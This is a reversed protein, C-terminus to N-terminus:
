LNRERTEPTDEAKPVVVIGTESVYYRQRDAELDFGLTMGAEIHVNKDVIARQIRCGPGVYVNDLLISDHVECGADLFVNRGLVSDKAYGGALICGPSVVSQVAAGRRGAEDFVFKAPPDNFNATMIPWKWNYLNLQPQVNKLDLNAEFYGEITGVDRWYALEEQLFSGPIRNQTFDYAYAVSGRTLAPLIDAGFDHSSDPHAADARLAEILTRPEFVYNGMSALCLDPQAPMGPPESPKELFAKAQSREDVEVIGFSVSQARPVPLCAVTAKAGVELHFEVMQRINMKYIHDAGFVVVVEPDFQHLLNMNQYVADATGRYWGTGLQMQAPVVHIFSDRGSVRGVWGRQIHELISQAKYQTLVYIADIGSNILNSLVFDIIRYRGGFPVAPKTRHRTLPELREGRGGAMVFALIRKPGAM